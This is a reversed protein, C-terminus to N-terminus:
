RSGIATRRRFLHECDTLRRAEQTFCLLLRPAAQDALKSTLAHLENLPAFKFGYYLLAEGSAEHLLDKRHECWECHVWPVRKRKDATEAEREGYAEPIWLSTHLEKGADLQWLNETSYNLNIATAHEENLLQDAGMKMLEESSM